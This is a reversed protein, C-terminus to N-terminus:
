IYEMPYNGVNFGAIFHLGRSVPIKGGGENQVAQASLRSYKPTSSISPM